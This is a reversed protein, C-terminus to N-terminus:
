HVILLTKAQVQVDSTCKVLGDDLSPVEPLAVDRKDIDIGDFSM